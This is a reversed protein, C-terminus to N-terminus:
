IIGSWIIGQVGVISEPVWEASSPVFVAAVLQEVPDIYLSSRGAGEHGFTGPSSFINRSTVRWGLGQEYSKFQDGWHYAPIGSPLNNSTMAEVTKRGLVYHGNFTGKNLMLQGLKCLDELSSYLGGASSPPVNATEEHKEILRRNERETLMCVKNHYPEPVNFFTSEMGLPEIINYEVYKEYPMKSIRSIIEGLIMFGFSSYLWEEGPNKLMPGSLGSKIWNGDESNGWWGKQYPEKFYGPDPTLGSTHTLLHFINIRNHVPTDFENIISAVPQTMYIFGKEMLQLIAITTFIKTISAIRRISDPMLDGRNEFGCLRGMSKSAFIKGNKSLMYSACQLKKESILSILLNDLYCLNESRYGVAEPTCHVKGEHRSIDVSEM